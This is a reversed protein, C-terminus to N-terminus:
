RVVENIKKIRYDLSVSWSRCTQLKLKRELKQISKIHPKPEYKGEKNRFFGFGLYKIDTPRAIKSKEANVKLKLKREIFDVISKMVREAAKKSGVLILCDDAYRVFNFGRAELEKDLENLM